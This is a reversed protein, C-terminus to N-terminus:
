SAAPNTVAGAFLVTGTPRDRLVYLFPRDVTLTRSPALIATPSAVVGTAAAATTGKEDVTIDAQHVVATLKLKAQTTMGSFDAQDTFAIPMGLSSLADALSLSTSLSFKPLALNVQQDTLRTMQSLLETDWRAAISRFMGPDPVIVDLALKGGAYALEVAQWGDGSAYPMSALQHMFPVTVDGSLAHFLGPATLNKAFPTAWDAHLYVANALVLRTLNDITGEPLLSKVRQDTHDAVWTNIEMRAAEPANKYDVLGVGTGFQSALLNLFAPLFTTDQQAFVRNAAYLQVISKQGGEIVSGNRSALAQNLANLASYTATANTIHLVKDIESATQGAAGVRAMALATFISWPSMALNPPATGAARHAVQNRVLDLGFANISSAAQIAIGPDTVARPLSSRVEASASRSTGSACAAALLATAVALAAM